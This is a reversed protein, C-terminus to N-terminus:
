EFHEGSEDIADRLRSIEDRSVKKRSVLAAFLKDASGDYLREVLADTQKAQMEEQSVLAKCVFGPETRQLAGKKICRYILTYTASSSYQVEDSLTEVIKRATTSGGERWVVGMVRLEADSLGVSM